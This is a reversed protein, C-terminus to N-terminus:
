SAYHGAMQAPAARRVAIYLVGNLTIGAAICVALAGLPLWGAKQVLLVGGGIALATMAFGALIEILVNMNQKVAMQEHTWNLRPMYLEALIGALSPILAGLALPVIMLAVILLPIRLFWAAVALFLLGSVLGALCGLGTKAAIQAEYSVPVIKMVNFNVGERSLASGAIGNMSGLLAGAAMAGFVALSAAPSDFSFTLGALLTRLAALDPDNASGQMALVVTLFAPMFLIMFINNFFFVPTRLMVRLDKVMISTWAHGSRTMASVQSLTTKRRGGSQGLGLVGGVYVSRGLALVLLFAVAACAAFALLYAFGAPTGSGALAASLFGTGVFFRGAGGSLSELKDTMAKVMDSESGSAMLSSFSLQFFLITVLLLLMFVMNVADRNRFVRTFRMLLMVPIAALAIPVVPLLLCGAVGYVYFLPGAGSKVGYICYVPLVALACIVYEYVVTTLFKAALIEDPRVPCILYRETDNAYYFVAMVNALGFLFIVMAALSTFGDLIMTEMGSQSLWDYTRTILFGGSVALPGLGMILFVILLVASRNGSKKKGSSAFSFNLNFNRLMVRTMASVKQLRIM